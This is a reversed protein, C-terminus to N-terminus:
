NPQLYRVLHRLTVNVSLLVIRLWASLMGEKKYGRRLEYNDKEITTLIREFRACYWYGAIKCRWVSLTDLYKKGERFYSRALDVRQKVWDQVQVPDLELPDLNHRVLYERPINIFGNSLDELLDRLMHTIHAASAALYQCETKPYEHGNHIFYQICDTVSVGLTKTYWDLETQSILNGKRQADFKLIALFNDIFSRLGSSPDRHQQILDRIITEKQDLRKPSNGNYLQSVILSQRDIFSVREEQSGADEDIYDDVWRFYAYARYCDQELDGDVLLKATYYTQKSGNRTIERALVGSDFEM